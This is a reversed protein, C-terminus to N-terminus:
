KPGDNNAPPTQGKSPYVVDIPVLSDLFEPLSNCIKVYDSDDVGSCREIDHYYIAGYDPKAEDVAICIRNGGSGIAFPIMYPRIDKEDDMTFKRGPINTLPYFGNIIDDQAGGMVQFTGTEVYEADPNCIVDLYPKPLKYGIRSEVHAIQEPTPVVVGYEGHVKKMPYKNQTM